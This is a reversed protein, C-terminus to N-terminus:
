HNLISILFAKTREHEPKSFIIEPKGQEVIKADDMFIVRSSVDRAFRMEHTVIIMTMGGFALQKVVDLVESVLEPDLASTIEDMLLLKPDMALARAIAVRQQQGGSLQSPYSDVKDSLGVKKLLELAIEKAEKDNRKKVIKQAIKINEIATMHNFLNFRQFIFGVKERIKHVDKSNPNLHEGDIIIEGGSIKELGNICRLLTTKGSGSPGIITLVESTNLDFSIDDLVRLSGFNKIINRVQLLPPNNSAM